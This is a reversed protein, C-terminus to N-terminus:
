LRIFNMMDEPFFETLTQVMNDGSSYKFGLRTSKEDFKKWFKALQPANMKSIKEAIDGPVDAGLSTEIAKLTKEQQISSYEKIGPRTIEFSRLFKLQKRYEKQSTFKVSRSIPTTKTAWEEKLQYDGVVEYPLVELGEKAYAKQAAKIRRNALQTLRRIEDKQFPTLDIYKSM